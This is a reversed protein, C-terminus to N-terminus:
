RPALATIDVDCAEGAILAGIIDGTLAALLMGNRGHGTAYWLGGLRSDPGVIPCGDPTAPRLGAWTRTLPVASLAPLLRAAGRRIQTLGAETVRCDFGAREMTSGLLAEGGRAVVYTHDHFAITPAIGAAM